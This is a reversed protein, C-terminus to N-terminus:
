PRIERINRHRWWRRTEALLARLALAFVAAAVLPWLVTLLARLSHESPETSAGAAALTPMMGLLYLAIATTLLL